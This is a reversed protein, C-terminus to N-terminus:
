LGTAPAEDQKFQVSSKQAVPWYRVLHRGPAIRLETHTLQVLGCSCVMNTDSPSNLSVHAHTQSGGYRGSQVVPRHLRQSGPVYAAVIKTASEFSMVHLGHGSPAWHSPVSNTRQPGSWYKLIGSRGAPPVAFFQSFHGRPAVQMSPDQARM